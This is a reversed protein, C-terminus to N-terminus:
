LQHRGSRQFHVPFISRKEGSCFDYIMLQRRVSRVVDNGLGDGALLRKGFVRTYNCIDVEICETLLHKTTSLHVTLVPQFAQKDLSKLRRYTM